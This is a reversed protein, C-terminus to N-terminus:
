RFTEPDRLIDCLTLMDGLTEDGHNNTRWVPVLHVINETNSTSQVDVMNYGAGGIRFGTADLFQNKPLFVAGVEGEETLFHAPNTLEYIKTM